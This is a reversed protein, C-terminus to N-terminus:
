GQIEIAVPRRLELSVVAGAPIVVPKGKTAAAVAAGIAGGVIGGVAKGQADDAQHGLIAGGVVSGAITGADKGAESRGLRALAAEIPLERGGPLELRDFSLALRARGGIRPARAEVVAGVVRAGAPIAVVGDVVVPDAVETAFRAGPQSQHSSLTDLFRVALPTGAPVQKVVPESSFLGTGGQDASRGCGLAALAVALAVALAGRHLSVTATSQLHIESM